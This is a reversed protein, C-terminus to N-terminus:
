WDRRDSVSRLDDIPIVIDIPGMSYPAIEYPDWHILLGEGIVGLNDPLELGGEPIWFGAAALDGDPELDHDSRLRLTAMRALEDPDRTLDDVGLLQGTAVDFSVLRQRFNPHAGGTYAHESVRITCVTGTNYLTETDIKVFWGGAADPWEEAFARYGDIFADALDQSRTLPNGIEEPLFSRLRSILDHIVFLDITDRTEETGGGSTAVTTVDVRACRSSEDACEDSQSMITQSIFVVPAIEATEAAPPPDVPGAGGCGTILVVLAIAPILRPM